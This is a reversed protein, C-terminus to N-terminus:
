KSRGDRVFRARGESGGLDPKMVKLAVRRDHKLDDALFVIAMGGEAVQRDIRYRDLAAQLRRFLDSTM